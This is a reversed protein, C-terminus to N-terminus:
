VPHGAALDRREGVRLPSSSPSPQEDCTSEDLSHTRHGCSSASGDRRLKQEQARPANQHLLLHSYTHVPTHGHPWFSQFNLLRGM